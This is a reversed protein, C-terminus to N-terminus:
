LTYLRSANRVTECLRNVVLTLFSQDRQANLSVESYTTVVVDFQRLVAVVNPSEVRSGSKHVLIRDMTGPKTHAALEKIWQDVISTPVVVLTTRNKATPKPQNEVMIAIMQVTQIM